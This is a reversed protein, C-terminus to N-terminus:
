PMTCRLESCHPRHIERKWKINNEKSLYCNTVGTPTMFIRVQVPIEEEPNCNDESETIDENFQWAWRFHLKSNLTTITLSSVDKFQLLLNHSYNPRYHAMCHVSATSIAPNYRWRTVLRPHTTLKMGCGGSVQSSRWYGNSCAPHVGPDTQVPNPSTFIEQVGGGGFTTGQAMWGM